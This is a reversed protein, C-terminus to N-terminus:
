LLTCAEEFTLRPMRPFLKTRDGYGLNCLFNSKVHGVPFFEEECGECPTGAGFFEEDVRANDFGSLPGCDLGVARAAMILYGGQLSSNRRATTEVLEPANAFLDRMGPNHPFLKTMKGYFHLDYAVIATVPARMTKDVNSPALAHRLREKAAATRLFVIRAPSSNASTPGWKMLDYVQRLTDDSVPRDLWASFTRANRFLLDLAEDNLIM